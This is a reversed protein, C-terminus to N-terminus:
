LGDYSLDLTIEDGYKMAHAASDATFYQDEGCAECIACAGDAHDALRAQSWHVNAAM